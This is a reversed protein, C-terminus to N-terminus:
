DPTRDHARRRKEAREERDARDEAADRLYRGLTVKQKKAAETLRERQAKGLRVPVVETLAEDPTPRGKSTVDDVTDSM